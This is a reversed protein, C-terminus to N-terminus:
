HTGVTLPTLSAGQFSKFTKIVTLANPRHWLNGLNESIQSKSKPSSNQSVRGRSSTNNNKGNKRDFVRTHGHGREPNCIGQLFNYKRTNISNMVILETKSKRQSISIIKSKL